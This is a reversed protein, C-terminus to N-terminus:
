KKADLVQNIENVLDQKEEDSASLVYREQKEMQKIENWSRVNNDMNESQFVHPHRRVMKQSIERIVDEISFLGEEEAIQAQIVVQFLVDGLEECMNEYSGSKEYIRIAAILEATEDILCKEMSGHTQEKDWPCGNESRLVKVIECLNSFKDKEKM